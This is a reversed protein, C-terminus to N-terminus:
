KFSRKFLDEIAKRGEDTLKRTGTGAFRKHTIVPADEKWKNDIKEAVNIIRYGNDVRASIKTFGHLTAYCKAGHLKESVDTHCNDKDLVGYIIITPMKTKM